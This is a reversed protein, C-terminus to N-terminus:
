AAVTRRRPARRAGSRYACRRAQAVGGQGRRCCAAAGEHPYELLWAAVARTTPLPQQEPWTLLAVTGAGDDRQRNFYAVRALAALVADDIDPPLEAVESLPRKDYKARADVAAGTSATLEAILRDRLADVDSM